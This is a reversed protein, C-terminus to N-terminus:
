KSEESTKTKKAATKKTDGHMKTKHAALGAKTKMEADCEDCVYVTQKEYVTESKIAADGKIKMLEDEMMKVKDEMTDRYERYESEVSRRKNRLSELKREYEQLEGKSNKKMIREIIADDIGHTDVSGESVSNIRSVNKVTRKLFALAKDKDDALIGATYTNNGMIYEVRYVKM